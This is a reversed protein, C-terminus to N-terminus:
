RALDRQQQQQKKNNDDKRRNNGGDVVHIYAYIECHVTAGCLLLLVTRYSLYVFGVRARPSKKVHSQSTHRRRRPLLLLPAGDGSRPKNHPNLSPTQMCLGLM